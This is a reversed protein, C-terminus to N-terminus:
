LCYGSGTPSKFYTLNRTNLAIIQIALLEEFRKIGNDIKLILMEVKSLKPAKSDM